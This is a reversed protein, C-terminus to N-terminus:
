RGRQDNKKASSRHFVQTLSNIEGHIDKTDLNKSEQRHRQMVHATKVRTSDKFNITSLSMLDARQPMPWDFHDLSSKGRVAEVM